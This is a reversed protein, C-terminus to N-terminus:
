WPYPLKEKFEINVGLIAAAIDRIANEMDLRVEETLDAGQQLGGSLSIANNLLKRLKRVQKASENNGLFLLGKFERM